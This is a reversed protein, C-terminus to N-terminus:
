SAHRSAIVAWILTAVCTWLGTSCANAAVTQLLAGPMPIEPMNKAAQWVTVAQVAAQEVGVACGIASLALPWRLRKKKKDKRFALLLCASVVAVGWPLLGLLMDKGPKATVFIATPGDAGGIIGITSSTQVAKAQAGDKLQGPLHSM